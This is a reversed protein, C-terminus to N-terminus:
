QLLSRIKELVGEINRMVDDNTFRLVTIGAKRLSETRVLDYTQARTNYHSDGDIEIALKAQVCYFDVIYNLFSYQRRFKFGNLNNDRLYYWLKQEPQTMNKRLNKRLTRLEPRNVIISM